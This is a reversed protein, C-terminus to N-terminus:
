DQHPKKNTDVEEDDSSNTPDEVNSQDLSKAQNIDAWVKTASLKSKIKSETLPFLLEDVSRCMRVIEREFEDIEPSV